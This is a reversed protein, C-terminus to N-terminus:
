KKRYLCKDIYKSYVEPHSITRTCIKVHYVVSDSIASPCVKLQLIILVFNFNNNRGTCQSDELGPKIFIMIGRSFQTTSEMLYALKRMTLGMISTM